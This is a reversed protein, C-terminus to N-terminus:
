DPGVLEFYSGSVTLYLGARIQAQSNQQRCIQTYADLQPRYKEALRRVFSRDNERELRRNTKWDLIWWNNKGQLVLLDIVGEMWRKSMMPWLFPLEPMFHKGHNLVEHFTESAFFIETEQQLRQHIIADMGHQLRQQLSQERYKRCADLGAAWPLGEIWEHWVSGYEVGGVGAENRHEEADIDRDPKDEQDCLAHPLLREPVNQSWASFVKATQQSPRAVTVSKAQAAVPPQGAPLDSAFSDRIEPWNVLGGFNVPKGEIGPDSIVLTKKSRTMAVYLLRQLEENRLLEMSHKWEEGASESSVMVRIQDGQRHIFPYSPPKQYIKRWLGVIVVVPWELGKSKHCSILDLGGLTAVPLSPEALKQREADLWDMLTLGAASAEEITQFFRALGETEEGVAELRAKLQCTSVLERVTRALPQPPQEQRKGVLARHRRELFELATALEGKAFVASFLSLGDPDLEHLREIEADPIVFIDRLVGVLEFRDYPFAMVHLLAYPWTYLPRDAALQRSSKYAVPIGAAQFAEGASALWGVRPCLVAVESWQQVGLDNLGQGKLWSAVQRCELEFVAQDGAKEVVELELPLRIAASGTADRFPAAVMKRFTARSQKIRGPYTRNVASVVPEPCRMTVSFEIREGGRGQEYAQVYDLYKGIDARGSYICQQDDGVFSFQGACPGEADTQAPWSGFREGRPRTIETLIQFMDADTDQAEDLIVLWGRTRMQDLVEPNQALRLTESIMDDYTLRLNDVRYGRYAEAIHAAMIVASEALWERYPGLLSAADAKFRQGGADVKPLYLFPRDEALDSCWRQLARQIRGVTNVNRSTVKYELLPAVDPVSLVKDSAKLYHRIQDPKLKEAINFVEEISYYKLAVQSRQEPWSLVGLDLSQKFREFFISDQSSLLRVQGPLGLHNGYDRLLRLCFSHITGFYIRNFRALLRNRVYPPDAAALLRQRSRVRLEQAAMEGYTVVVLHDLPEDQLDAAPRRILAEVRDVIARTKGAGAGASICFNCDLASTFRDRATQDALPKM